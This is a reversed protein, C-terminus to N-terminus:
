LPHSPSFVPNVCSAIYQIDAVDVLSLTLISATIIPAGVYLCLFASALLSISKPNELYWLLVITALSTSTCCIGNFLFPSEKKIAFAFSSKFTVM